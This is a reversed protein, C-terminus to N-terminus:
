NLNMVFAGKKNVDHFPIHLSDCDKNWYKLKWSPTSADFVVQRINFTKALKNIYLKPNKSILVLDVSIKAGTTDFVLSKDIILIRKGGAQLFNGQFSFNSLQNSPEVRHLIRSPKVHFNTIFDNALLESDGIFFYNRGEIFDIAQHKPVNYVILKQQEDSRYFSFSRAAVFFLLAFIGVWTGGKQKELLWYGFGAVVIILFAAQLISIQMGDWLSYPLSEIREIYSNMLWILWSLVKGSLSALFPIFSIACLFIEGLVIM